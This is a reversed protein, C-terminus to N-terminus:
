ITSVTIYLRCRQRIYSERMIAFAWLVIQIGIMIPFRCWMPTAILIPTRPGGYAKWRIGCPPKTLCFCLRLRLQFTTRVAFDDVGEEHEIFEGLRIACQQCDAFVSLAADPMGREMYGAATRHSDALMQLLELALTKQVKRM